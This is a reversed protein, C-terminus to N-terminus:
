VYFRIVKDTDIVYQGHAKFFEEVEVDDSNAEDVISPQVPTGFDYDVGLDEMNVDFEVITDESDAHLMALEIDNTLFIIGDRLGNEEISKYNAESTGHYMRVKM